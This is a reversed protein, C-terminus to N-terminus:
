FWFTSYGSSTSGQFNDGLDFANFTAWRSTAQLLARPIPIKTTFYAMGYCPREKKNQLRQYGAQFPWCLFRM